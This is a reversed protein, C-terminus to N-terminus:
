RALLPSPDIPLGGPGLKVRVELYIRQRAARGLRARREVRTGLPVTVKSLRAVITLYEGHDIIVGQDLGRIPGAYTVVGAEPAVAPAQPEVDFDIGRRSLTANSGEHVLTGFSRAIAGTAPAALETPLAITPVEALAKEIALRAEALQALEDALLAREDRDRELLLRASARRRASAMRDAADADHGLAARVIRYAAHARRARAAEIEGLKGDITTQTTRITELELALQRILQARQGAPEGAVAVGGCVAIAASLVVSARRM